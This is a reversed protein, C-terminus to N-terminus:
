CRGQLDFQPPSQTHVQMLLALLAKGWHERLAYVLCPLGGLSLYPLCLQLRAKYDTPEKKSGTFEVFDGTTQREATSAAPDASQPNARSRAAVQAAAARDVVARSRCVQSATPQPLAIRASGGIQQPRCGLDVAWQVPGVQKLQDVVLPGVLEGNLFVCLSGRSLDLLLGVIDGAKGGRMGRWPKPHGGTYLSGDYVSAAFMFGTPFGGAQKGGSATFGAGVVGCSFVSGGLWTVEAYHKGAYMPASTCVAAEAGGGAAAGRHTACAGGETLAVAQGADTFFHAAGLHDPEPEPEPQPPKTVQRGQEEM